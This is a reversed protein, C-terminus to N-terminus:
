RGGARTAVASSRDLTRPHTSLRRSADASTSCRQGPTPRDTRAQPLPLRSPATPIQASQRVARPATTQGRGTLRAPLPRPGGLTLITTAGLRSGRGRPALHLRGHPRHVWMLQLLVRDPPHQPRLPDRGRFVVQVPPGVLRGSKVDSAKEHIPSAALRPVRTVPRPSLVRRRHERRTCSWAHGVGLAGARYRDSMSGPSPGALTACRRDRM